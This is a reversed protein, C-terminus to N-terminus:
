NKRIEERCGLEQVGLTFNTLNLFVLGKTISENGNRYVVIIIGDRREVSGGM